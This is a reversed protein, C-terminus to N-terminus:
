KKIIFIDKIGDTYKFTEDVFYLFDKSTLMYIKNSIKDLGKYGSKKFESFMLSRCEKYESKNEAEIRAGELIDSYDDIGDNDFDTNSKIDEFGFDKAYYVTPKIDIIDTNKVVYEIADKYNYVLISIVITIFIFITIIFTIIKKGM